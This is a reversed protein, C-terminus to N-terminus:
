PGTKPQTFSSCGLLITSRGLSLSIENKMCKRRLNWCDSIRCPVFTTQIKSRRSAPISGACRFHTGRFLFFLYHLFRYKRKRKRIRRVFFVSFIMRFFRYICVPSREGAADGLAHRALWRRLFTNSFCIAACGRPDSALFAM